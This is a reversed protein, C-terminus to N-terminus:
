ESKILGPVLGLAEDLKSKDIGGAQGIDARGGGGGGAAQAVKKVINGAHIGKEVLDPTAMAIFYPKDDWLAGLVIVGSGMREKLMDGIQRMADVNSASVSTALVSVGDVDVVKGLLDSSGKQHQERV